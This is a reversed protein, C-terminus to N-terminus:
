AKKLRNFIVEYYVGDTAPYIIPGIFLYLEGLKPHIMKHTDHRFVKDIPGRFLLSFSESFDSNRETMKVLELEVLDMGVPHVTFKENLLPEFDAKTLEDIM